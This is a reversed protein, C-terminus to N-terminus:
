DNLVSEVISTEVSEDCVITKYKIPYTELFTKIKLDYEKATEESENRGSQNYAKTRVLFFHEVKYGFHKCIEHHQKVIAKAAQGLKEFPDYLDGYFTALALPSDTVIFDLGERMYIVERRAQKATIYVQDGPLIKRKEWVWEKIYERNMETNFGLTKLKNFVGACATSKGTGPGGWLCIIKKTNQKM